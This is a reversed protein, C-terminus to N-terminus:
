LNDSQNFVLTVLTGTANNHTSLDEIQYNIDWNNSQKLLALREHLVTSSRSQYNKSSRQFIEKAKNIGIGDDKVIVQFASDNIYTFSLLINGNGKKHFVGHNVANEVIPQLIMTPILQEEQDLKEDIEIKYNLKDEFRMQEIQLYNTLLDVEEKITIKKNELINM